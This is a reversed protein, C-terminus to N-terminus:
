LADQIEKLVQILESIMFEHRALECAVFMLKDEESPIQSLKWCYEDELNIRKQRQDETM